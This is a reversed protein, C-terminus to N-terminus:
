ALDSILEFNDTLYNRVENLESLTGVQYPDEETGTGGSFQAFAINLGMIGLTSISLNKM